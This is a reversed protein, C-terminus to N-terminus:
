RSNFAIKHKTMAMLPGECCISIEPTAVSISLMNNFEHAISGTFRGVAELKSTHILQQELERRETVDLWIGYIERPM